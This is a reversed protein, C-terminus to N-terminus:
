KIWGVSVMIDIIKVLLIIYLFFAVYGYKIRKRYKVINKDDSDKDSFVVYHWFTNNGILERISWSSWLFEKYIKPKNKKLYRYIKVYHVVVSLWIAFGGGFVVFIFLTSITDVITM